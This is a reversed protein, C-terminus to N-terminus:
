CAHSGTRMSQPIPGYAPAAPYTFNKSNAQRNIKFVTLAEVVNSSQKVLTAAASAAQEVLAANQQTVEDMEAVADNVQGIGTSQERSASAIENMISSVNQVSDIIEQMTNGAHEALVMGADVKEVSTEILKKIENAATASRQALHRVEAAVVSFGRGQEGARAAEVAANLALINTQFAISDILGIIEAIKKSSHSIDSMTTVVQSVIVGGKRAVVSADGAMKNAESANNTNQQVGSALEEMSSATQELAAAQSETRGSLDMNGAAIETTAIQIQEFNSRVDGIISRLNIRLQCMTRILQGIDDSREAVIDQTLDGGAMTQSVKCAYKLPNIVTVYLSRWFYLAGAIAAASLAALWIPGLGNFLSESFYHAMGLLVLVAIQFSMNWGIRQGLSRNTFVNLKAFAGTKVVAGQRVVLKNANGKKIASFAKAAEDIQKRSPKVRVSMYGVPSGNEMVPTVNALVWYFNGNKQRNKVMGTWSQGRKITSWLDAFAEAPMDPHRLINQPAGILEEKTYGSVQIFYPNAYTINGRLDTTSVISETDSLAYEINSVPTNMRM